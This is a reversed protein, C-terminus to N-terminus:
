KGRLRDVVGRAAWSAHTDGELVQPRTNGEADARELVIQRWEMKRLFKQTPRIPGASPLHESDRLPHDRAANFTRQPAQVRERQGTLPDVYEPSTLYATQAQGGTQPYVALWAGLQVEAVLDQGAQELQVIAARYLAAADSLRRELEKQWSVKSRFVLKTM